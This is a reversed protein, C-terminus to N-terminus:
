PALLRVPQTTIEHENTRFNVEFKTCGPPLAKQCAILVAEKTFGMYEFAPLESCRTWWEGKGADPGNYEMWEAKFRYPADARRVALRYRGAKLRAMVCSFNQNLIWSAHFARGTHWPQMSENIYIWRGAGAALLLDEPTRIVDGPSFKPNHIRLSM